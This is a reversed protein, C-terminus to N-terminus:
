VVNVQEESGKAYQKGSRELTNKKRCKNRNKKANRTMRQYRRESKRIITPLPPVSPHFLFYLRPICYRSLDKYDNLFCKM